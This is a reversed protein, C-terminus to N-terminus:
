NRLGIHTGDFYDGKWESNGWLNRVQVMMLKTNGKVYEIVDILSYTHSYHMGRKSHSSDSNAPFSGCSMVNRKKIETYFQNWM